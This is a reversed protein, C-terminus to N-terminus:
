KEAELEKLMKKVDDLHRCNGNKCMRLAKEAYEKAKAANKEVGIGDKYCRAITKYGWGTETKAALQAMRYARVADKGVGKEGDMYFQSLASIANGEGKEARVELKDLWERAKSEDKEVGFGRLYFSAIKTVTWSDYPNLSAYKEYLQVAKKPNVEGGIGEALCRAYRAMAPIDGKGASEKWLAAAKVVDKQTGRGEEYCNALDAIGGADGTDAAMKSYKFELNQDEKVNHGFRYENALRRMAIVNGAEADRIWRKVKREERGSAKRGKAEDKTAESLQESLDAGFDIGRALSAPTQQKAITYLLGLHREGRNHRVEVEVSANSVLRMKGKRRVYVADKAEISISYDNALEIQLDTGLRLVGADNAFKGWRHRWEDVGELSSPYKLEVGIAKGVMDVASKFEEYLEDDDAEAPLVKKMEVNFIGFKGKEDTLSFKVDKFGDMEEPLDFEHWRCSSVPFRNTDALMEENIGFITNLKIEFHAARRELISSLAEEDSPIQNASDTACGAAVAGLIGIILQRCNM